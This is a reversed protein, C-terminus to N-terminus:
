AADAHRVELVQEIKMAEALLVDLEPLDADWEILTRVPGFRELAAGYL